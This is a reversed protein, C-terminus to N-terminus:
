PGTL